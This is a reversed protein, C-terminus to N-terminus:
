IAVSLARGARWVLEAIGEVSFRRLVAGGGSKSRASMEGDSERAESVIVVGLAGKDRGATGADNMDRAVSLDLGRVDKLALMIRELVIGDNEGEVELGLIRARGTALFTETAVV